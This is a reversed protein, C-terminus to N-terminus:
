TNMLQDSLVRIQPFDSLTWRFAARFSDLDSGRVTFVVTERIWRPASSMECALGREASINAIARKFDSLRPADVTVTWVQM